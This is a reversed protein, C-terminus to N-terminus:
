TRNSKRPKNLDSVKPGRCDQGQDKVTETRFQERNYPALALSYQLPIATNYARTEIRNNMGDRTEQHRQQQKYGEKEM